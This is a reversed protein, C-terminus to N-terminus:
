RVGCTRMLSELGGFDWWLRYVPPLPPPPPPPRRASPMTDDIPMVMVVVRLGGVHGKSNNDVTYQGRDNRDNLTSCFFVLSLSLARARLPSPSPPLFSLLYFLLLFRAM